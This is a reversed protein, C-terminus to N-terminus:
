WRHDKCYDCDEYHCISGHYVGNYYKIYQIYQHNGIRIIDINMVGDDYISSETNVNVPNKPINDNTCASFLVLLSFSLLVKKM